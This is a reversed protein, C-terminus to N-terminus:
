KNLPPLMSPANKMAVSGTDDAVVSRPRRM